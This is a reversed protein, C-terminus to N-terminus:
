LRNLEFKASSRKSQTQPYDMDKTESSTM